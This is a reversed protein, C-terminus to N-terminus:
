IDNVKRFCKGRSRWAALEQIGRDAVGRMKRLLLSFFVIEMQTNEDNEM